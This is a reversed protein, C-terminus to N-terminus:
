KGYGYNFARKIRRIVADDKHNATKTPDATIEDDDTITKVTVVSKPVLVYDAGRDNSPLAFGYMNNKILAFNEENNDGSLIDPDNRHDFEFHPSFWVDKESYRVQKETVIRDWDYRIDFPQGAYHVYIHVGKPVIYNYKAM